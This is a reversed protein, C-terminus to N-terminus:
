DNNCVQVRRWVGNVRARTFYCTTLNVSVAPTAVAASQGLELVASFERDRRQWPRLGWSAV